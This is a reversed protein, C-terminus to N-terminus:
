LGFNLKTCLIIANKNETAFISFFIFKVNNFYCFFIVCVNWFDNRARAKGLSYDKCFGM